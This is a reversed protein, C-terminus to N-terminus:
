QYEEWESVEDKLYYPIEDDTLIEKNKYIDTKVYSSGNKEFVETVNIEERNGNLYLASLVIEKIGDNNLDKGIFSYEYGYGAKPYYLLSDGNGFAIKIKNEDDCMAVLYVEGNDMVGDADIDMQFYNEYRKIVKLDPLASNEKKAKILYLKLNGYGESVKFNNDSYNNYFEVVENTFKGGYFDGQICELILEERGKILINEITVMVPKYTEIDLTLKNYLKILEYLDARNHGGYYSYCFDAMIDSNDKWIDPENFFDALIKDSYWSYEYLRQINKDIGCCISNDPDFETYNVTNSIANVCSAVKYYAYDDPRKVYDGTVAELFKVDEMEYAGFIEIIKQTQEYNEAIEFLWKIKNVLKGNLKVGLDKRNNYIWHILETKLEVDSSDAEVLAYIRKVVNKKEFFGLEEENICGLLEKKTINCYDGNELEDLWVSASFENNLFSNYEILPSDYEEGEKLTKFYKDAEVVNAHQKEIQTKEKDNSIKTNDMDLQIGRIVATILFIATLIFIIGKVWKSLRKM